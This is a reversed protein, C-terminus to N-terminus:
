FVDADRSLGSLAILHPERCGLRGMISVQGGAFVPIGAEISAQLAPASDPEVLVIGSADECPKRFCAALAGAM